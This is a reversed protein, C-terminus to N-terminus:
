CIRSSDISVSHVIILDVYTRTRGDICVSYCVGQRNDPRPEISRDAPARGRHTNWRRAAIVAHQPNCMRDRSLIIITQNNTCVPRILLLTHAQKREARSRSFAIQVCCAVCLVHARQVNRLVVATLFTYLYCCRTSGLAVTTRATRIFLMYLMLHVLSANSDHTQQLTSARLDLASACFDTIRNPRNTKGSYWFGNLVYYRHALKNRKRRGRVIYM